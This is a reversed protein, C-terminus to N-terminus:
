QRSDSQKDWYQPDKRYDGPSCGVERRFLANFYTPSSYGVTEAIYRITWQTEVLLIKAKKLRYETLIEVFTKGTRSRLYRTFQSPSMYMKHAMQEITLNEHIHTKIHDLLNQLAQGAPFVLPHARMVKRVNDSGLARFLNLFFASLLHSCIEPNAEEQTAEATFLQFLQATPLDKVLQNLNRNEYHKEGISSCLMCYISDQFLLLQLLDCVGDRRSEGELHSRGGSTHPTFPPLLIFHGEGCTVIYDGARYDTQGSIVCVLKSMYLEHLGSEPWRAHYLRQNAYIRRNRILTKRGKIKQQALGVGTPLSSERMVPRAVILRDELNQAWQCLKDQVSPTLSFM